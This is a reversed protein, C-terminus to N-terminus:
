ITAMNSFGFLYNETIFSRIPKGEQHYYIGCHLIMLIYPNLLGSNELLHYERSFWNKIRTEINLYSVLLVIFIFVFNNNEYFFTLCKCLIQKCLIIDLIFERGM